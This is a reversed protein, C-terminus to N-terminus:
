HPNGAVDIEVVDAPKATEREGAARVAEMIRAFEAANEIKVVGAMGSLNVNTNQNIELKLPADLGLSKELDELARLKDAANRAHEVIHKRKELIWLRDVGMREVSEDRLYGIRARVVPDRMLRAASASAADRDTAGFARCYAETNNGWCEGAIEQCYTERKRSRLAQAAPAFAKDRDFLDPLPTNM